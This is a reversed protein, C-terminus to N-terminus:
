VGNILEEVTIPVIESLRPMLVDAGGDIVFMGEEGVSDTPECPDADVELLSVGDDSGAGVAALRPITERDRAPDCGPLLGEAADEVEYEKAGCDAFPMGRFTDMGERSM